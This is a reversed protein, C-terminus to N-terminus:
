GYRVTPNPDSTESSTFLNVVVNKIISFIWMIFKVASMLTTWILNTDGNSM